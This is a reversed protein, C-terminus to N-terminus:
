VGTVFHFLCQFMHYRVTSIVDSSIFVTFILLSPNIKYHRVTQYAAVL